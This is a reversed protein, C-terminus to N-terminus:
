ITNQTGRFGVVVSVRPGGGREPSTLSPEGIPSSAARLPQSLLHQEIFPLPESIGVAGGKGSRAVEGLPPLMRLPAINQIAGRGLSSDACSVSPSFYRLNQLGDIKEGETLAQPKSAGEDSPPKFKRQCPLTRLVPPALGEGVAPCLSYFFPKGRPPLQRRLLSILPLYPWRM